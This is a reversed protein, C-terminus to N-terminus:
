SSTAETQEKEKAKANEKEAAEQKQELLDASVGLEENDWGVDERQQKWAAIIEDHNKPIKTAKILTALCRLDNSSASHIADIITEHFPRKTTKETTQM